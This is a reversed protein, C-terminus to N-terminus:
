VNTEREGTRETQVKTCVIVNVHVHPLVAQRSSHRRVQLVWWSYRKNQERLQQLLVRLLHRPLGLNSVLRNPERGHIFHDHVELYPPLTIRQHPHPFDPFWM